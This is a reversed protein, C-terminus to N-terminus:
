YRLRTWAVRMGPTKKEMVECFCARCSHLGGGARFDFGHYGDTMQVTRVVGNGYRALSCSWQWRTDGNGSNNICLAGPLKGDLLRKYEGMKKLQHIEEVVAFPAIVYKGVAEGSRIADFLEDEYKAPNFAIGRRGNVNLNAVTTVLNDFTDPKLDIAADYWRTVRGLNATQLQLTPIDAKVIDDLEGIFIAKKGEVWEGPQLRTAAMAASM